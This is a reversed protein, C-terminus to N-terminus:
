RGKFPHKYPDNNCIGLHSGKVELDSTVFNDGFDTTFGAVSHSRYGGDSAALGRQEEAKFHVAKPPDLLSDTIDSLRGM